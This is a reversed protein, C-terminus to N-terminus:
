EGGPSGKADGRLDFWLRIPYNEDGHEGRYLGKQSKPGLAEPQKFKTGIAPIEYLFSLDGEPFPPHTGGAVHAPKDPRFLQFYLNPTGSIVTIPSESTELVAWYLNGHYGKFEPYVLNNFSEGTITNNYEKEWVGINSGKLRNKWVRYPGRGMWRVSRVNEEPYNFSIGIYGIDRVPKQLPSAELYLLGTKDLVWKVKEPYANRTVEMVFNGSPDIEWRTGTVESTIGAPVPGGSLSIIGKHNKVSVLSGEARSFSIELGNVRATINQDKETMGIESGAVSSLSGVIEAAKEWTQVVPWSWSCIERGQHDIATLLLLDAEVLANGTELMLLATEGPLADPGKVTGGGTILEKQGAFGTKLAQWTVKCQNLNTYIFKNELFLKGNWQRNIIVPEVQIPSWIDRVTYFSGEKQRHPGTIGDPAHNGDGDYVVGERDTRLVAEDALVWLFGGAHLPSAQYSKWFEDLGAGHGGDYLGHLLETAMFPDNGYVFRGIAYEYEPYHKTEMGNRLLMPYLVPRKQIDYLHFHKENAFDWGRENGHNWVVVSPHNEDKLITEKILKPGVITDYPDQWGTVENLVFLGLSDCLELFRKDPVYHSMRVANMNMEKILAIDTLHHQEALCRGTEPWFSHRNVGKFVVKEGNVYFGDNRRLEVTRFGIRHSVEHLLQDGKRLSIKMDYLHPWEPNWSKVQDFKGSVTEQITSASLSKSFQGDIKKGDLSFLEVTVSHATRSENLVVLVNFSGDAKADIAARSIHTEPLVELFVPRFIGGFIWFDAQREAKNVSENASHKAVDVELLNSRGYKLLKSVDYKFRYFGGQHIEGAPKGNIKVQTDTMSGDFVIQITKGKWHSPVDFHHRYLGREKGLKKNSDRWDHGYNYTGFGQLEWNSPVPITTWVGSNRGETCYFEWDVTNHADTGSLYVIETTQSHARLAIVSLLAIAAIRFRNM